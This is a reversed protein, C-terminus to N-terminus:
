GPIASGSTLGFGGKGNSKITNSSPLLTSTGQRGAKNGFGPVILNDASSGQGFVTPYAKLFANIVDNPNTQHLQIGYTKRVQTEVAQAASRAKPDNKSNHKDIIYQNLQNYDQIFAKDIPNMSNKLLDAPSMNHAAAYESASIENGNPDYFAYGGDPKQIQQYKGQGAASAAAQANAVQVGTNYNPAADSLQVKALEAPTSYLKSLEPFNGLPSAGPAVNAQAGLVATKLQEYQAAGDIPPPAPGAAPNM